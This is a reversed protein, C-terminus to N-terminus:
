NWQEKVQVFSINLYRRLEKESLQRNSQKKISYYLVLETDEIPLPGLEELNNRGMFSKIDSNSVNKVKGM